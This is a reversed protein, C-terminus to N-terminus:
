RMGHTIHIMSWCTVILFIYMSAIVSSFRPYPKEKSLICFYYYYYDYDYDYDYFFFNINSKMLFNQECSFSYSFLYASWIIPSLIKLIYRLWLVSTWFTYLICYTFVKLLDIIFLYVVCNLFQCLYSCCFFIYM